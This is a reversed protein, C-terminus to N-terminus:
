RRATAAELKWDLQRRLQRVPGFASTCATGPRRIGPTRTRRGRGQAIMRGIEELATPRNRLDNLDEVAVFDRRGFWGPISDYSDRRVAEVMRFALDCASVVQIRRRGDASAEAAISRVLRTKGVGPTGVVTLVRPNDADERAFMDAAAITDRQSDIM